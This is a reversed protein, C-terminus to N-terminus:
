SYNYSKGLIKTEGNIAFEIFHQALPLDFHTYTIVKYYYGSNVNSSTSNSTDGITGGTEGVTTLGTSALTGGTTSVSSSNKPNLYIKYVCYRYSTDNLNEYQVGNVTIKKCKETLSTQYGYRKLDETLEDKVSEYNGASEISQIIRNKVKYAKSYSISGVVFFMVIILIFIVIYFLISNGIASHM